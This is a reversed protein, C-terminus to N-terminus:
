DVKTKILFGWIIMHSYKFTNIPSETISHGKFNADNTFTMSYYTTFSIVRERFENSAEIM